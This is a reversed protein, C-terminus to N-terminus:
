TRGKQDISAAGEGAKYLTLVDLVDVSGNGDADAAALQAGFLRQEGLLHRNVAGADERTISGDGDADGFIIVPLDLFHTGGGYVLRVFDGSVAKGETKLAGRSNILMVSGDPSSIASALQAAETGPAIGQVGKESIDFDSSLLEPADAYESVTCLVTDVYYFSLVDMYAQGDTARQQAGRQSMGIGHGYRRNTLFWGPHESGDATFVGSEAGRMRLTAGHTNFIGDPNEDTNVLDDLMLTVCVQGEKGSATRVTMIVDAKTYMRSPPNYKSSYAKVHVTSLLEATEGAAQEAGRELMGLVLPDMLAKTEESFVSPIFSKEELSYPNKLDYEDDSNVYYPLDSQWVNGTLETQGGNSAAYYAQIIDGEYTLVQGKTENVAQIARTYEEAYGHYVQDESTDLVDYSRSGYASCNATVYGRACVAQAKLAEIPFTNSMEYPVVGYLYQEIPLTNIVRLGGESVDFSMSGLYTRQGYKANQITISSSTGGYDRSVLTLSSATAEHEGIVIMPRRGRVEITAKGPLVPFSTDEELFYEGRIEIEMSRPLGSSILVRVNTFFAAASAPLAPLLIVLALVASLVAALLKKM